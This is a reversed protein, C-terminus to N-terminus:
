LNHPMNTNRYQLSWKSLHWMWVSLLQSKWKMEWSSNFERKAVLYFSLIALIYKINWVFSVQTSQRCLALYESSSSEWFLSLTRISHAIHGPMMYFCRFNSLNKKLSKNVNERTVWQYLIRRCHPLGSNSGQIPFIGQLRSHSGVGTNKGPSTWPSSLGCPRLSDSM